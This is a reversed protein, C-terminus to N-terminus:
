KTNLWYVKRKTTFDEKGRLYHLTTLRSINAPAGKEITKNDPERESIFDIIEQVTGKGLKELAFTIKEKWSFDKNYEDFKVTPNLAKIANRIEELESQLAALKSVEESLIKQRDNLAILIEEKDM